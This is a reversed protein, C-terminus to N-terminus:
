PKDIQLVPNGHARRLDIALAGIFTRLECVLCGFDIHPDGQGLERGLELVESVGHLLLAFRATHGLQGTLLSGGVLARAFAYTGQGIAVILAVARPVDDKVFEVQAILPPLSTANGIGAGFLLVGIVLLPVSEGGAMILAISGVIQVAYSTCAVLRRDAKAPMLWGVLTRGAMAAATALGMALGALQSGLAPVLLSFLHAILGIQAFLGLAMGASLTIFKLNRWLMNGPLPRAAPSTVDAAPAGPADGDPTLGMQQPTRAFVTGALAWVSIIMVLGIVAAAIPFGLWGVAAVWLPSFVVGGISAGNYAM